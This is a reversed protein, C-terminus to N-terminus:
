YIYVFKNKRSTLLFLFFFYLNELQIRLLKLWFLRLWPEVDRERKYHGKKWNEKHFLSVNNIKKNSILM